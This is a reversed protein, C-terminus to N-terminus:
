SGEKEYTIIGNVTDDIEISNITCDTLELILNYGIRFPSNNIQITTPHNVEIALHNFDGRISSLDTNNDFRITRIESIM